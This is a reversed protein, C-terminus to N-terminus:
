SPVSVAGEAQQDSGGQGHDASGLNTPWTEKLGAVQEVQIPAVLSTTMRRIAVVSSTRAGKDVPAAPGAKSRSRSPPRRPREDELQIPRSRPTVGSRQIPTRGPPM